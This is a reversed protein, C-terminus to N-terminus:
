KWRRRKTGLPEVRTHATGGPFAQVVVHGNDCRALVVLSGDRMVALAPLPVRNLRDATTRSRLAKLGLLRRVWAWAITCHRPTPRSTTCGHL